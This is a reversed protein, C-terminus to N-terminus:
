ASMEAYARTIEKRLMAIREEVAEIQGVLSGTVRDDDMDMTDSLEYKLGDLKEELVMIDEQMNGIDMGFATQGGCKDAVEFEGNVRVMGDRKAASAAYSGINTKPALVAKTAAKAQAVILLQGAYIEVRMKGTRDLKRWYAVQKPSLYGFRTFFNAMSTGMRAHCPRFGQGNDYKVTEQSREDATQRANLAVLARAVAKDNTKLMAVIEAKTVM